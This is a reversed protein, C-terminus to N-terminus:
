AGYRRGEDLMALYNDLPLYDAISNGSGLCYGGGPHCADLTERTRERVEAESARCLFDMDIGGILGVRDGYKRKTETVPMITDEFSHKADIGVDDILDDMLLDLNGCAHLLYPKGQEHAIRAAEKHWPLILKKLLEPSLLPQSKFGMDDSGWIAGMCPFQCLLRTHELYLKGIREAMADVLEPDDFLKYCLSEYGFGWSLQEFVHTTLEHVAMGEPLNKELWELPRTDLNKLDPWPYREFDEWSQIPGQHEEVWNRGAATPAAGDGREMAHWDLPFDFGELRVRFLDYGLFRHVAIDRKLLRWPDGDSLGKELDFREAVAKRIGEDLYLELHFVRTPEEGEALCGLMARYDPEVPIEFLRM